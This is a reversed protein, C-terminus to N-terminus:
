EHILLMAPPRVNQPCPTIRCDFCVVCWERWSVCSKCLEYAIYGCGLSCAIGRFFGGGAACVVQCLAGVATTCHVSAEYRTCEWCCYCWHHPGDWQWSCGFDFWLPSVNENQLRPWPVSGGPAPNGLAPAMLAVAVLAALAVKYM